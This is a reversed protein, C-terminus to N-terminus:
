QAHHIEQDGKTPMNMARMERPRVTRSNKIATRNSGVRALARHIDTKPPTARSCACAPTPAKAFPMSSGARARNWMNSLRGKAAGMERMATAKTNVNKMVEASEPERTMSM